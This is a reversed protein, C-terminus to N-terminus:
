CCGLRLTSACSTAATCNSTPGLHAARGHFGGWTGHLGVVDSSCASVPRAPHLDCLGLCPPLLLLLLLLPLLLPLRTCAKSATHLLLAAVAAVAIICLLCVPLAPHETAAFLQTHSTHTPAGAENCARARHAPILTRADTRAFLLPWQCAAGRPTYAPM